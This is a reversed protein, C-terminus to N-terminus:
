WCNLTTSYHSFVALSSEIQVTTPNSFLEQQHLSYFRVVIYIVLL